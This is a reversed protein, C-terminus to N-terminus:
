ENQTSVLNLNEGLKEGQKWKKRTEHAHTKQFRISGELHLSHLENEGLVVTAVVVVVVIAVVVAVVVLVADDDAVAIVKWVGFDVVVVVIV